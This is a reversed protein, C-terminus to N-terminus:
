TEAGWGAGDFGIQGSELAARICRRVERDWSKNGPHLARAADNLADTALARDPNRKKKPPGNRWAGGAKLLAAQLRRDADRERAPSGRWIAAAVSSAPRRGARSRRGWNPDAVALFAAEVADLGRRGGKRATAVHRDFEAQSIDLAAACAAAALDLASM